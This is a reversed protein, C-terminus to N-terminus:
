EPFTFGEVKDGPLLHNSLLSKPNWLDKRPCAKLLIFIKWRAERKLPGAIEQYVDWADLRGKREQSWESFGQM